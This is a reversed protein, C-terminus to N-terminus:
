YTVPISTDPKEELLNVLEMWAMRSEASPITRFYPDRIGQQDDYFYRWEYGHNSIFRALVQATQKNIILTIQETM